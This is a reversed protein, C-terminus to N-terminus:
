DCNNPMVAVSGGVTAPAAATKAAPASAAANMGAHRAEFTLGVSARRSSHHRDNCVSLEVASLRHDATFRVDPHLTSPPLIVRREESNVAETVMEGMQGIM